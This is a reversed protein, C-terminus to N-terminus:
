RIAEWKRVTVVEIDHGCPPVMVGEVEFVRTL